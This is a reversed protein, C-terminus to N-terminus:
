FKKINQPNRCKRFGMFLMFLILAKIAYFGHPDMVMKTLPTRLRLTLHFLLGIPLTLFLWDTRSFYLHIKAFYKTLTSSLLFIGLYAILFDFVAFPGIRFQRLINILDM